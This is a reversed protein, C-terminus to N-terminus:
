HTKRSGFFGLHKLYIVESLFEESLHWSGEKSLAGRRRLDNEIKRVEKLRKDIFRLCHSLPVVFHLNGARELKCLKDIDREFAVRFVNKVNGFFPRAYEFKTESIEAHENEGGKVEVVLGVTDSKSAGLLQLFEEDVKLSTLSGKAGIREESNGLRIALLDIQFGERTLVSFHPITFFGNLRLYAQAIKEPAYM